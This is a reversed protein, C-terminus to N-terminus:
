FHRSFNPLGLDAAIKEFESKSFPGKVIDEAKLHRDDASKRFYYYETVSRDGEPNRMAVIWEDDEGVAAVEHMVRGISSGGGLDYSLILHTDIRHVIYSGSKWKTSSNCGALVSLMLGFSILRPIM